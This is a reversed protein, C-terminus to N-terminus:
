GNMSTAVDLLADTVAAPDVLMHFHGAEFQRIPWGLRHAQIAYREYFPSFLIYSCPADPWGAFVPLPEEYIALPMPRLESVFRQRITTDPIDEALDGDTWVPILGNPARQRWEDAVAQSEFQDLRSANDKPLGADVFIYGTVRQALQDRFTPLMPGAGSHAVLIIARDAPVPELARRVVLAHRQWYPSDGEELDYLSPVVADYGRRWLEDAVSAWTYPGVLPSHVLLFVDTM